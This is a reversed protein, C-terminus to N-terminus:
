KFINADDNMSNIPNKLKMCHEDLDFYILCYQEIGNWVMSFSEIGVDM